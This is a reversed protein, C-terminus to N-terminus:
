DFLSPLDVWEVAPDNALRAIKRDMEAWEQETVIEYSHGWFYFVGDVAKAREFAAWFDEAMFHRSPHFEMADQVPWVPEVNQVTRAYVHGAARIADKVAQNYSGYPYAFGSVAVGFWQELELRGVRIDEAAQQIPIQDLMPHTLSHNAITFGAYVGRLEGKALKWVEKEGRFKWDSYREPKHLGLNLNFSAKAGHRRLIETLQIDDLVGDDWCQAVKM